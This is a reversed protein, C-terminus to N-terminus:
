ALKLICCVSFFQSLDKNGDPQNEKSQRAIQARIRECHDAPYKGQRQEADSVVEKM